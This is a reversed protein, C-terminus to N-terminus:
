EKGLPSSFMAAYDELQQSSLRQQEHCIGLKEM